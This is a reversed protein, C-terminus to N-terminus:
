TDGPIRHYDRPTSLVGGGGLTSFGGSTSMIDGGRSEDHYAGPTSMIHWWQVSIEQHALSIVGSYEHYVGSYEHYGGSYENYLTFIM